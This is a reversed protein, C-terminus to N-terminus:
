EQNLYYKFVGKDIRVCQINIGDARLDGIRRHWAIGLRALEHNYVGHRGARKLAKFVKSELTEQKRSALIEELEQKRSVPRPKSAVIFESNRKPQSSKNRKFWM